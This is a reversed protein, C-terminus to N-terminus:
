HAQATQETRGIYSRNKVTHRERLSVSVSPLNSKSAWDALAGSAQTGGLGTSQFGLSSQVWEENIQSIYKQNKIAVTSSQIRQTISIDPLGWPTGARAGPTPSERVPSALTPSPILIPSLSVGSLSDGKRISRTSSEHRGGPFRIPSDWWQWRWRWTWRWGSDVM